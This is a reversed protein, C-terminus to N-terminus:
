FANAIETIDYAAKAVEQAAQAAANVAAAAIASNAICFGVSKTICKHQKTHKAYENVIFPRFNAFMKDAVLKAEFEHIQADYEGTANFESM